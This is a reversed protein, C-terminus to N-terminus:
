GAHERRLDTKRIKGSATRPFDEVVVVTKPIKYRALRGDLHAQVQAPELTFGDRVTVVAKPVEGWKEDPIGIVAVGSVADLESIIQEVEAPYINEGGSIIMDKLRDSIFLFGEDDFYGMDGSRFWTGDAFSSETADPRNWYSRIVNPGSIQVEGVEGPGAVAGDPHAIRVSTFFHPIGASGAKERSRAPPLATAGPATETMGYGNSFGLGREEYADIVRLPVASGGCTLKRLSSIDRKAWDPHECLLQYTTPVGSIFTASYKEILDLTRGPEFRTELIVTAGKLLNPLVGMDLSAVHFLPSIMLAVDDGAVDYDVLVNFCNWALNAHTLLAGKPQGTTGSTYLIIAGDELSVAADLFGGPEGNLSDEYDQAPLGGADARATGTGDDVLLRLGVDTGRSGRVALEDLALTNVLVAAGSDQLAFQIEPPALRTNLPVFVAGLAGAAFFTELFAPHNDGLFAVRTGHEVGNARLVAALRNIREDLEAYSTRDDRFILATKSGSKVRQRHIWSGLGQNQM